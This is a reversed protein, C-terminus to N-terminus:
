STAGLDDRHPLARRNRLATLSRRVPCRFKPPSSPPGPNGDSLFLPNGITTRSRADLTEVRWWTGLPGEFESPMRVAEFNYEFRDDTIPVVAQEFGNCIIRLKQEPGGEVRVKVSVAVGPQVSFRSGFGGSRGDATTATMELAPSNAVGRTRVYARGERLAKALAARSLGDSWVATACTGLGKGLKVDSGCVATIQYGANLLGEWFKIASGMFPNEVEVWVRRWPVKHGVLAPGTLVEITDVANWDIEDRLDFACGRCLSRLIGRDFTTPHNVQFLADAAIVAKQIDSAVVDEFGHRYEIFSPTEGICQMHGFYTIIERGPWILVERNADQVTGYEDWHHGVVYETVPMFDLGAEVAIKVFREPMPGHENSHWSHMHFDGHYWAEEQRAVRGPDIPAKIRPAPPDAPQTARLSVKWTAGTPGPAAMGLEVFWVGPQISGPRYSRTASVADIHIRRHRCGSWGRFAEACRYGGTDWLGLDLVTKTVFKQPVGPTLPGFEYRIDLAATGPAVEFPLILYTRGEGPFVTGEIDVPSSDPGCVPLPAGYRARRLRRMLQIVPLRLMAAVALVRFAPRWRLQETYGLAPDSIGGAIVSRPTRM